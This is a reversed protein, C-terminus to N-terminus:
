KIVFGIWLNFQLRKVWNQLGRYVTALKSSGIFKETQVVLVRNKIFSQEKIDHRSHLASTLGRGTSRM